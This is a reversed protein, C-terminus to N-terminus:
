GGRKRGLARTFRVIFVALVVVLAVFVGFVVYGAASAVVM